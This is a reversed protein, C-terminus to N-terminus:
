SRTLSKESVKVFIPLACPIPPLLDVRAIESCAVWGTKGCALLFEFAEVTCSRSGCIFASSERCKTPIADVIEVIEGAVIGGGHKLVIRCARGKIQRWNKRRM